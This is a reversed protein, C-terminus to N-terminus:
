RDYYFRIQETVSEIGTMVSIWATVRDVEARHNGSDQHPIEERVVEAGDPGIGCVRTIFQQM